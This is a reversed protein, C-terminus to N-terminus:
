LKITPVSGNIQKYKEHVLPSDNSINEENYPSFPEDQRLNNDKKDENQTHGTKDM